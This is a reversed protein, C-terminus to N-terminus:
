GKKGYSTAVLKGNEYSEVKYINTNPVIYEKKTATNFILVFQNELQKYYEISEQELQEHVKKDVDEDFDQEECEIEELEEM